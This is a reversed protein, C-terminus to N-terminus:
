PVPSFRNVLRQIEKRTKEKVYRRKLVADVLATGMQTEGSLTLACGLGLRARTSDPCREIYQRFSRAASDFRELDLLIFGTRLLPEPNETGGRLAELYGALAGKIDGEKEQELGALYRDHRWKERFRTRNKEMLAHYDVNLDHFTRNGHHYVYVDRAVVVRLGQNKIRLCLDNDEYNGLGFRTDFAGVQELVNRKIVLCMGTAFPVDEVIGAYRRTFAKAKAHMGEENMFLGIEVEQDEIAYNSCAAAAAISPDRQLAGVLRNLWGHTVILDNNMVVVYRGKGARIGANCGGAFGLNEPERLIVAEPFERVLDESLGDSGNDVVILRFPPDTHAALSALFKRTLAEQNHVPVVIDVSPIWPDKGSQAPLRVM